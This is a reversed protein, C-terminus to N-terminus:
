RVTGENERLTLLRGVMFLLWDGSVAMEPDSRGQIVRRYMLERYAYHPNPFLTFFLGGKIGYSQMMLLSIGDMRATDDAQARGPLWKREWAYNFAEKPDALAAVDAAELVFRAVAAYSLKEAEVLTELEDATQGWAGCPLWFALALLLVTPKQAKKYQM